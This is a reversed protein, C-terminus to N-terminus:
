TEYLQKRAQEIKEKFLKFNEDIVKVIYDEAGVVFDKAIPIGILVRKECSAGCEYYYKYKIIICDNMFTKTRSVEKIISISYGEPINSLYDLLKNM